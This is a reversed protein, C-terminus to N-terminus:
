RGTEGEDKERGRPADRRATGEPGRGGLPLIRFLSSALAIGAAICGAVTLTKLALAPALGAEGSLAARLTAFMGEGPVLPIVAPVAYITAPRARLSASLEAFVGVALAAAFYAAYDSAM